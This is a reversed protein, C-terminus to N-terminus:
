VRGLVLFSQGGQNRLLVVRDGEALGFYVEPNTTLGTKQTNFASVGHSHPGEGAAQTSHSPVVHDHPAITHTHTPYAGAKFEKMLVIADGSIDFRNDVRITLPSTKTVTGFMFAAPVNANQTQGAVQKMTDLLSM